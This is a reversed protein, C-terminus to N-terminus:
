ERHELGVTVRDPRNSTDAYVIRVRERESQDLAQWATDFARLNKRLTDNDGHGVRVAVAREYTTFTIGRRPDINIEGLAPRESEGYVSAADLARVIQQQVADQESVYRARDLGTIVPLDAGDGREIAARQYVHGAANALYLGGLEVLAVPQHETIDVVVTDPLRRGVSAHAVVPETELVEAMRELQLRFINEGPEIALMTSIREDSITQNGRVEIHQVAFRESTTIFQYGYYAGLGLGTICAAAIFGPLARRALHRLRVLSQRLDPLRRWIPALRRRNRRRRPRPRATRARARTVKNSYGTLGASPM